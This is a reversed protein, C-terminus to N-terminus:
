PFYSWYCFSLFVNSKRDFLMSLFLWFNTKTMFFTVFYSSIHFFHCQGTRKNTKTGASAAAVAAAITAPSTMPSLPSQSVPSSSTKPNGMIPQPTGGASSTRLDQPSGGVSSDSYKCNNSIQNIVASPSDNASRRHGQQSNLSNSLVSGGGGPIGGGGGTVGYDAMGAAMAAAAQGSMMLSYQGYQSHNTLNPFLLKSLEYQLLGSGSPHSAPSCDTRRLM